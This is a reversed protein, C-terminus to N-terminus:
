PLKVCSVKGDLGNHHHHAVLIDSDDRNTEFSEIVLRSFDQRVTIETWDDGTSCGPDDYIQIVYGPKINSLVLSRAEDNDCQDHNQFNFKGHDDTTLDCVKNQTARNGEYFSIIGQLTQSGGIQVYSVKGDLGDNRFYRIRLDTNDLAQEFSQVVLRPVLRKVYIEVWDDEKRGEPNDYIKIVQGPPLNYLVMSRAEDNSCNDGSFRVQRDSSVDLSCIRDQSANNGEYFEITAASAHNSFEVRSVKGDLGNKRHFILQIDPNDINNEFTSILVYKIQRKVYIETWDDNTNGTPSDYLRIIQGSLANYLGLSRAEDNDCQPHGQFTVIGSNSIVLSCVMNQSGNNGEFLDMVPELPTSKIEMRSVKGDLGNNRHYIVNVDGNEFSKEFTDVQIRLNSRKIEIMTWDDERKGDPNDYFMFVKGALVQNFVVSRAEDNDCESSNQFNLNQDTNMPVSCLLNQEANNGEYLDVSSEMSMASIVELRSVKGDLGNNRHYTVKMEPTDISKEFTDIKIVPSAKKVQIEAWDDERAGSPNDYLRVIKGIPFNYLLLSRAEDNDCEDHNQFNVIIDSSIILECVKNQSIQNGEYLSITPAIPSTAIEIHSIKGDLGNNRHFAMSVMENDLSQEFSSILYSEIERKTIIETWDDEMKADPDDYVRLISGTPIKLLKVSRIEDNPCNYNKLNIQQPKDSRVNCIPDQSGGNGEYFAYGPGQFATFYKYLWWGSFLLVAIVLIIIIIRVTNM